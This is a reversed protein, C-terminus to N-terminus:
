YGPQKKIIEFLALTAERDRDLVPFLVNLVQRERTDDGKWGAPAWERVVQDIKLALEAREEDGAPCHFATTQISGLNNYLTIAEPKGHLIAPVGEEPQNRGLRKALTEADRLFQEYEISDKRKRRILDELLKSMQEYFRPDTLQDRIITQRINNIIGEAISDKSLKGKQNLKRAIADHIGSKIILDTM